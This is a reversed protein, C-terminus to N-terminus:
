VAVFVGPRLDGSFGRDVPRSFKETDACTRQRLTFAGSSTARTRAPAIKWLPLSSSRGASMVGSGTGGASSVAPDSTAQVRWDVPKSLEETGADDGDTGMVLKAEGALKFLGTGDLHDGPAPEARYDKAFDSGLPPM